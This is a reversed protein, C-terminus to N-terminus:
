SKLVLTKAIMDHWARRRKSWLAWLFGLGLPVYSIIKACNRGFSRAITLPKGQDDAARLGLLRKGVTGQMASGEAVACYLVYILFSLDRIQNRQRLYDIRADIDSREAWHRHLTQDFGLFAYFFGATALTIPLVDIVYALLRAGFGASPPLPIQTEVTQADQSAADPHDLM